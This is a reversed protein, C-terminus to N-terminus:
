RGPPYGADRTLRVFSPIFTGTENFELIAKEAREKKESPLLRMEVEETEM